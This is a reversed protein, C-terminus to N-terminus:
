KFWLILKNENMVKTKLDIEYVSQGNISIQSSNVVVSSDSVKQLQYPSVISLTIPMNLVGEYQLQMKKENQLYGVTSIKVDACSLYPIEPLGREITINKAPKYLIATSVTEGDMQISKFYSGTGQWQVRCLKGHINVDYEIKKFKEPLVPSLYLNWSNDRIGALQYISQMFFGGAWLFSPKDVEGYRSSNKDTIRYEYFSPQGGPSKRIGDLSLYKYLANYAENPQNAALLGMVYWANGQPWIAGNFYFYPVGMEMGHFKYIDGLQDFDPPMANRIGLDADLLTDAATKLLTATKQEDLLGYMAAVLSGTYYHSDRSTKDLMNMLYGAKDDWLNKTLAMKINEATQLFKSLHDSDQNLHHAMYVYDHLARYMLISIYSRAGRINGIDWWDPRTAYMLHDDGKNTLMLKLSKKIIPYILKITESDASHRLYKAATIIFWLHNWNDTACFETVYETDKWYYAHALISDEPNTLTHLFHLGSRAYDTDFYIAGQATHLLDHTFFFNYEAPCPMPLYNGDIYHINAMMLAKSWHVTQQMSNDPIKFHAQDFAFDMIRNTNQKIQDSWDSVSQKLVQEIEDHHGTGILQVIEFAKDGTGSISYEFSLEDKEQGAVPGNPSVGANAVFLVASDTEVYDFWAIKAKYPINEGFKTATKQQFSHSTRLVAKLSTNLRINKLSSSLDSIKIRLVLVPLDECVDYSINYKYDENEGEFQVNFPTYNYPLPSIGLTDSNSETNLTIILPLSLYRKWYDTSLDISNAVPYYFSIRSPLARSKHFEVGVYRGGIEVQGYGSNFQVQLRNNEPSSQCSFFFIAFLFITWIPNAIPFQSSPVPYETRPM